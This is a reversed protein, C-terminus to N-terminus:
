SKDFQDKYGAWKRRVDELIRQYEPDNRLSQYNRDNKFFPYDHNGVKVARRLWQLSNDREGLLAYVGGMWYLLDGDVEKEPTLKLV